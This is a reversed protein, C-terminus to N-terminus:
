RASRERAKLPSWLRKSFPAHNYKRNFDDYIEETSLCWNPGFSEFNGDASLLLYFMQRHIDKLTQELLRLKRHAYYWKGKMFYREIENERWWEGICYEYKVRISKYKKWLVQMQALMTFRETDDTLRGNHRRSLAEVFERPLHMTLTKM